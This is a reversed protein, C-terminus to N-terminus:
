LLRRPPAFGYLVEHGRRGKQVFMEDNQFITNITQRSIGTECAIESVSADTNDTTLIYDVIQERAPKKMQAKGELEPFEGINAPRFNTLGTEGFELAYRNSGLGPPLDNRKTIQFGVGLTRADKNEGSLQVVLDAAAEFHVGGFIHSDDSRPTHAIALWTDCLGSLADMISNAVKNENLDGYGSRSISDLFVVKVAKDRIAKRCAPLIDHLSRGRAHLMLLKREPPLGLVFNCMALRRAVSEKSRELNIFLVTAQQVPWFKSVGADVSIAWLLSVYTKGRGPPSFLVTGAGKMIYPTLRFITPKAVTDGATEEPQVTTLVFNWLGACFADLDRKLEKDKYTDSAIGKSAANALRTRDESREINFYSWGLIQIGQSIVIRSHIGTREESIKEARFSVMSGAAPKDWIVAEDTKRYQPKDGAFLIDFDQAMGELKAADNGAELWDSVDKDPLQIVKLTKAKGILSYIISRAYEQGPPDQDPIIVVDKGSLYDAYEAQWSKAGMPSTTAPLGAKWLNDADKEGEVIFVRQRQMIEPLRYIVRRVGQLNYVWENGGNRHRQNFDKPTYRVTQFLLKGKEDTYDYTCAIKRPKPPEAPAEPKDGMFLDEMSLGMSEVIAETTCGVFCKVLLRDDEQCVSLSNHNDEHAPCRATFGKAQKRVGQLKAIFESLNM